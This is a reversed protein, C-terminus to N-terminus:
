AMESVQPEMVMFQGSPAGTEELGQSTEPHTGRAAHEAQSHVASAPGARRSRPVAGVARDGLSHSVVPPALASHCPWLWVPSLLGQQGLLGPNFRSGPHPTPMPTPCLPQQDKGPCCSKESWGATPASHPCRCSPLLRGSGPPGMLWDLTGGVWQPSGDAGGSGM